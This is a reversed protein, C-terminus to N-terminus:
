AGRHGEEPPPPPTADWAYHDLTSDIHPGGHGPDLLGVAVEPAPPCEDFSMVGATRDIAGCPVPRGNM